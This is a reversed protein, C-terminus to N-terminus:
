LREDTFQKRGETQKGRLGRRGVKAQCDKETALASMSRNTNVRTEVATREGSATM